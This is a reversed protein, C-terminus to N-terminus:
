ADRQEPGSAELLEEVLRMVERAQEGALAADERLESATAEPRALRASVAALQEVPRGLNRGLVELFANTRRLSDIDVLVMVAGEIRSDATRYQRIRLSYWRGQRDQVPREFFGVGDVVEALVSELDSIQIGLNIDNISRGLDGPVLKLVKEAAPTFRRIRFDAGLMVIPLQVSALLNLLDDNSRALEANRSQLEDNVTALEENASQIEEKSTELEENISQLEQNSSQVEENASQLEENAAEQQEIVSQLYDRTAGLEHTLRDIEKQAEDSGGARQPARGADRESSDTRKARAGVEEGVAEFVVLVCATSGNRLPMAVVNVMLHGGLSRAKLGDVRVTTKERRARHLAGRVGVLLGERLMKLLNLSAKGPAPSLFPGTDGRFQIINFEDDVTVAPPAYRSLLLRDAERQPDVPEARERPMDRVLSTAAATARALPVVHGASVGPRKLYLKHKGDVVDFLERYSGITESSGLWLYGGGRLAYHLLPMLRQQLVPELYILMNRCAILDLRSFPPDALANQQAFVCMDRLVKSIRYHGDVEVFFRRLREPSVDQTIGRPYIGQRAREIGAGNLDTAFIQMPVRKGAEACYEQYSMAISYAEEGTSCGLAWVRVCDHRGPRQALQPFVVEKLREYSEPNRFFSTVNILIDQYLAQVEGPDKQLLRLYDELREIRHLVMRRATRRQLTNRKYNSFDVGKADRVLELIRPFLPAEDPIPPHAPRAFPHAAIRALEQAIQAPPLVLDVYGSAIAHQPMSQQEASEDQAITIGGATKIEQLGLTGDSLMGSLVVGIARHAHEEALSRMFHDIPRHKGPSATRRVTELGGRTYVMDSAPAIVYVHNQKVPMARDVVQVPMHTCRVLIEGLQTPHESLHPIIVYAMGTGAPLNKLLEQLAAVGGASAGIAVISFEPGEEPPAPVPVAPNINPLVPNDGAAVPRATKRTRAM